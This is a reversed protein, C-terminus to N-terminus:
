EHARMAIEVLSIRGLINELFDHTMGERAVIIYFPEDPEYVGLRCPPRPQRDCIKSYKSKKNTEKDYGLVCGTCQATSSVDATEYGAAIMDERTLYPVFDAVTHM